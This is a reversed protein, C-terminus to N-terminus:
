VQIAPVASACHEVGPLVDIDTHPVDARGVVPAYSFSLADYYMQVIVDFEPRTVLEM